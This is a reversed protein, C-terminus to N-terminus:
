KYRCTVRLGIFASFFIPVLPSFDYYLLPVSDKVSLLLPLVLFLMFSEHQLSLNVIPTEIESVRVTHVTMAIMKTMSVMM